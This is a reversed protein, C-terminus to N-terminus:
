TRERLPKGGNYSHRAGLASSQHSYYSQNQEMNFGVSHGQAKQIENVSPGMLNRQEDQM